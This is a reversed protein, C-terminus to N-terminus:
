VMQWLGFIQVIKKTLKKTREDNLIEVVDDPIYQKTYARFSHKIAEQFNEETPGLDVADQIIKSLKKKDDNNLEKENLKQNESLYKNTLHHSHKEFNVIKEKNQLLKKFEIKEEESKPIKGENKEKYKELFQYLLVPYPVSLCTKYSTLDFSTLYEKLENWPNDLRYDLIEQDPKGEVVEHCNGYIRIYGILGYSRCVLLVKSTEFCLKALKKMSIYDINTAIIFNFKSFFQLNKEDKLIDYPNKEVAYGKVEPNMELLNKTVEVCRSKGISEKSVYFNNGLDRATVLSDDVITFEGFGPLVINKLIEAGCSSAHL